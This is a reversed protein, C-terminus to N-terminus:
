PFIKHILVLPLEQTRKEKGCQETHLWLVSMWTNFCSELSSKKDNIVLLSSIKSSMWRNLSTFKFILFKSIYLIYVINDFLLFYVFLLIFFLHQHLLIVSVVAAFVSALGKPLSDYLSPIIVTNWHNNLGFRYQQM